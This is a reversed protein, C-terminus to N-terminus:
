AGSVPVRLRFLRLINRGVSSRDPKSGSEPEADGLLSQIRAERREIVAAQEKRRANAELLEAKLRQVAGEDRGCHMMHRDMAAQLMAARAQAEEVQRRCRQVELQLLDIQRVHDIREREHRSLLNALASGGSGTLEKKTTTM